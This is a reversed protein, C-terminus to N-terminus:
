GPAATDTRAFVLGDVNGAGAQRLAMAAMQLTAGTTSVDDVLLIRRGALAPRHAPHAQYAQRLNHWRQERSLTRQDPSEGHRLLAQACPDPVPLGQQRGLHRVAKALEWAQNYGREALRQPTLPIPVILDSETLLTRIEPRRLMLRAMTHAWAPEGRFKLRAVLDDWPYAYDVAAVCHTLANEGRQTLCSGCLPQGAPALRACAQCRWRPAGFRRTCAPCVPETPWSGCVQCQGPWRASWSRWLSLM